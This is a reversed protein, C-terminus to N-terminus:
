PSPGSLFAPLDSVIFPPSQHEDYSAQLVQKTEEESISFEALRAQTLVPVIEFEASAAGPCASPLPSSILRIAFVLSMEVSDGRGVGPPAFRTMGSVFTPAVFSSSDVFWPAPIRGQRVAVKGSEETDAVLCETGFSVVGIGVPELAAANSLLARLTTAPDNPSGSGPNDDRFCGTPLLVLVAFMSSAFRGM